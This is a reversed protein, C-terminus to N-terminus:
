KIAKLVVVVAMYVVVVAALAPRAPVDGSNSVAGKIYPDCSLVAVRLHDEAAKDAEQQYQLKM